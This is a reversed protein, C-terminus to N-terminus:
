QLLGETSKLKEENNVYQQEIQLYSEKSNLLAEQDLKNKAKQLSLEKILNSKENTLSIENQVSIALISILAVIGLVPFVFPKPKKVM